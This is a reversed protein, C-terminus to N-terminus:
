CLLNLLDHNKYDKTVMWSTITFTEWHTQSKTVRHVIYSLFEGPWYVPILLRERRWPIKGIWPDFGPKVWSLWLPLGFLNKFSFTVWNHGIKQWVCWERSHVWIYSMIHCILILGPWLWTWLHNDGDYSSSKSFNSNDSIYKNDMKIMFIEVNFKLLIFILHRLGSLM